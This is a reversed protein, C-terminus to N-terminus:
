QMHVVHLKKFCFIFDMGYCELVSGVKLLCTVHEEEAKQRILAQEVNWGSSTSGTGFGTGKAWYSQSGKEGTAGPGQGIGTPQTPPGPMQQHLIHFHIM